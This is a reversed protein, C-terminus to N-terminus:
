LLLVLTRKGSNKDLLPEYMALDANVQRGFIGLAYINSQMWVRITLRTSACKDELSMHDITCGLLFEEPQASLNLGKFCVLGLDVLVADFVNKRKKRLFFTQLSSTAHAVRKAHLFALRRASRQLISNRSRRALLPIRLGDLLEKLSKSKVQEIVLFRDDEAM